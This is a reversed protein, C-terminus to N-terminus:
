LAREERRDVSIVSIGMFFSLANMFYLLTDVPRIALNFTMIDDADNISISKVITM